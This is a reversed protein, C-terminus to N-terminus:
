ALAKRQEATHFPLRPLKSRKNLHYDMRALALSLGDDTRAFSCDSTSVSPGIIMVTYADKERLVWAYRNEAVIDRERM